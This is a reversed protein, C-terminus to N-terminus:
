NRKASSVFVKREKKEVFNLEKNQCSYNKSNNVIKNFCLTRAILQFLLKRQTEGRELACCQAKHEPQLAVRLQAKKSANAYHM